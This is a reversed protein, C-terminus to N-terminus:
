LFNQLGEYNIFRFIEFGYSILLIFNDTVLLLGLLVLFVGGIPGVWKLYKSFKVLISNASGIAYAIMLFPIALGLSFVFLMVGGQFATSSVTTLLLISALIPGVCPTWGFGFSAGLLFSRVGSPAGEVAKLKFRREVNLTNLFPLNLIGMMWLGFAIVFAGGVRTLIGRAPAIASGFLGALVGFIIFIISFGITFFLGNFFIKRRSKKLQEPNTLDAGSIFALYGPVIPLTCPALFTLIGAIFASIILAIDM